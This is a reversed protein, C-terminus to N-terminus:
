RVMELIGLIEDKDLKKTTVMIQTLQENCYFHAYFLDTLDYEDIMGSYFLELLNEVNESDELICIRYGINELLEKYFQETFKEYPVYFAVRYAVDVKTNKMGFIRSLGVDLIEKKMRSMTYKIQYDSLKNKLDQVWKGPDLRVGPMLLTTDIDIVIAKGNMVAKILKYRTDDVKSLAKHYDVTHYWEEDRRESKCKVLKKDFLM